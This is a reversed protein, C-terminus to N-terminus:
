ASTCAISAYVSKSATGSCVERPCLCWAIGALFQPQSQRRKSAESRMLDQPFHQETLVHVMLPHMPVAVCSCPM